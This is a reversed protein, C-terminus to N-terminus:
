PYCDESSYLCREEASRSRRHCAETFFIHILSLERARWMQENMTKYTSFLEESFPEGKEKLMSRFSEAENADFDLLTNDVDFLLTDYHM